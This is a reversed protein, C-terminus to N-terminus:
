SITSLYLTSNIGAIVPLGVGEAKTWSTVPDETRWQSVAVFGYKGDVTAGDEIPTSTMLTKGVANKTTLSVITYEPFFRYETTDKHSIKYTRDDVIIEVGVQGAIYSKAWDETVYVGAKSAIENLKDNALIYGM